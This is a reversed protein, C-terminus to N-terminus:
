VLWGMSWKKLGGRLWFFFDVGFGSGFGVAFCIYFGVGKVSIFGVGLWVL